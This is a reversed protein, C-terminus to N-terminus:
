RQLDSVYPQEKPKLVTAAANVVALGVVEVLVMFVRSVVAILIAESTSFYSQLLVVMVAERVGLGSPTIFSVYGILWSLLFVGTLAAPHEWAASFGLAQVIFLQFLAFALWALTMAAFGSPGSGVNPVPELRKLVRFILRAFLQTLRPHMVLLSGVLALALVVTRGPFRFADYQVLLLASLGINAAVLMLVEVVMSTFVVTRTAGIQGAQAVRGLVSWINGPIYRIIESNMWVRATPRFKVSVGLMRLITRWSEARLFFYALGPILSVIMWRWDLTSIATRVAPWDSVLRRSLFWFIVAALVWRLWGRLGAATRNSSAPQTM